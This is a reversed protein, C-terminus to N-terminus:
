PRHAEHDIASACYGCGADPATRFDHGIACTGRAVAADLNRRRAEREAAIQEEAYAIAHPLHRRVFDVPNRPDYRIEDTPPTPM